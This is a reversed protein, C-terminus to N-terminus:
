IAGADRLAAVDDPGLGLETLIADTHEGLAPIPDMRPDPAGPPALARLPGEPTAVERWRGRAALQPHSWLDAPTNVEATALNAAELRRAAQEATLPALAAGILAAVEDRRAARKVNADYRPDSALAADGLIERCFVAWERENQLGIMVTRGDGCPYPGYPVISPHFAGSRPQPPGSHAFYMPNGMWEALTEFLSLDIHSGQGTRARLLLASLISSFGYMGASVDAASFGTRAMADPTGTISLLGAEAQIFLDYAKRDRYPGDGGYGSIDCLILGPHRASLAEWGLGLRAAAGPALNQVVVDAKEVLADLVAGAGPAKLDLTLSEKSRNLWAFYSSLGNARDDYARAFDGSGPREIKIVRAGHDALQRTCFPAAVAHELALVTLGDLSRTGEARGAQM